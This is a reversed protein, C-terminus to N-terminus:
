GVRGDVGGGWEGGLHDRGARRVRLLGAWRGRERRRVRGGRGVARCLGCVGRARPRVEGSQVASGARCRDSGGVELAQRQDQSLQGRNRRGDFVGEIEIGLTNRSLAQAHWIWTSPTALVIASGTRPVLVHCNVRGYRALTARPGFECATQHLTVGTPRLEWRDETLTTPPHALHLRLGPPVVPDVDHRAAEAELAGWTLPGVIGDDALGHNHQWKSVVAEVTEDYVLGMDEGLLEGLRTLAPGEYGLKVLPGTM